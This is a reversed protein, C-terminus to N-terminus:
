VVKVQVKRVVVEMVLVVRIGLHVGRVMELCDRLSNAMELFVGM